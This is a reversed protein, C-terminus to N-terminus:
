LYGLFQIKADSKRSSSTGLRRSSQSFTLEFYLVEECGIMGLCLPGYDLGNSYLLFYM